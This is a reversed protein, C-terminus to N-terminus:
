TQSVQQAGQQVLHQELLDVNRSKSRWGIDFIDGVLPIAGIALDIGMNAGMRALTGTSVGMRRAEKMIYLSPAIALADGIGPVLGLIADWGIRTGIVPLRYANDMTTALKRLRRLDHAYPHTPHSM